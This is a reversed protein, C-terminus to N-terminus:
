EPKIVLFALVRLITPELINIDKFGLLNLGLNLYLILLNICARLDILLGEYAKERSGSFSFSFISSHIYNSTFQHIYKLRNQIIKEIEQDTKELNLKQKLSPIYNCILQIIDNLQAYLIDERMILNGHNNNQLFEKIKKDKKKKLLPLTEYINRNKTNGDEILDFYQFINDIIENKRNRYTEENISEYDLYKSLDKQIFLYYLEQIEKRLKFEQEDVLEPDAFYYFSSFSEIFCRSLSFLSPIIYIIDNSKINQTALKEITISYSLMREFRNEICLNKDTKDINEFTKELFSLSIKNIQTLEELLELLETYEIM